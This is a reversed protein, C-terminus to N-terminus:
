INNWNKAIKSATTSDVPREGHIKALPNIEKIGLPSPMSGMCCHGMETIECKDLTHALFLPSSHM